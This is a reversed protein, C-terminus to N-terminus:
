AAIAYVGAPKPATGAGPPESAAAPLTSSAACKGAALLLGVLTSSRKRAGTQLSGAARASASRRSAASGWNSRRGAREVDVPDRERWALPRHQVGPEAVRARQRGDRGPAARDRAARPAGVPRFALEDARVSPGHQEVGAQGGAVRARVGREM